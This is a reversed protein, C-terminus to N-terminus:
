YMTQSQLMQCSVLKKDVLPDMQNRKIHFICKNAVLNYAFNSTVLECTGNTYLAHFEDIM